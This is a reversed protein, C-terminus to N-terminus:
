GVLKVGDAVRTQFNGATCEVSRIALVESKLVSIAIGPFPFYRLSRESLLLGDEVFGWPFLRLSAALLALRSPRSFPLLNHDLRYSAACMACVSVRAVAHRVLAAAADPGPRAGPDLALADPFPRACSTRMSLRSSVWSLRTTGM